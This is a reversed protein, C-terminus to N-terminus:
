YYESYIGFLSTISCDSLNLCLLSPLCATRTLYSTPRWFFFLLPHQNFGKRFLSGMVWLLAFLHKTVATCFSLSLLTKFYEELYKDM